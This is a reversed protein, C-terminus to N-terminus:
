GVHRLKDPNLVRYFATIREGDTEISTTAFVRGGAATVIAPEGNLWAIRHSAVGKWKREVGLLFRVVRDTGRLVRRTSSVKGGGDATWTAEEALM